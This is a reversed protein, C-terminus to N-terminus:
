AVEHMQCLSLCLSDCSGWEEQLHVYTLPVDEAMPNEQFFVLLYAPPRLVPFQLHIESHLCREGNSGRGHAPTDGAPDRPLSESRCPSCPAPVGLVLEQQPKAMWNVM